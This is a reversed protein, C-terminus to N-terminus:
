GAASFPWQRKVASDSTESVEIIHGDPDYFRVTLREDAETLPGHLFEIDGRSRLRSVFAELNKEEFFLESHRGCCSIEEHDTGVARLWSSFTQITLDRSFAVERNNAAVTNQGLVEFYFQRSQELNKVLILNCDTSM